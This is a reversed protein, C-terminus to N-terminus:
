LAKLRSIDGDITSQMYDHAVAILREAREIKEIGEKGLTKNIEMQTKEKDINEQLQKRQQELQKLQQEINLIAENHAQLVAQRKQLQNNKEAAAGKLFDQSKNKLVDKYHIAAEILKAPPIDQAEFSTLVAQLVVEPATLGKSTMKQQTKILLQRFEFYDPGPLNSKKLEDEFFKVFSPDVQIKNSTGQQANAVVFSPADESVNEWVTSTIPFYTPTIDTNKEKSAEMEATKSKIKDEPGDEIFGKQKLFSKLGM